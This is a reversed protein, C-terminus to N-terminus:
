GEDTTQNASSICRQFESKRKIDRTSPKIDEEKMELIDSAADDSMSRPTQLGTVFEVPKLEVAGPTSAVSM